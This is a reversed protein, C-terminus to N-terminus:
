VAAPPPSSLKAVASLAAVAAALTVNGNAPWAGLSEVGEALVGSAPLRAPAYRAVSVVVARAAPEGAVDVWQLRLGRWEPQGELALLVAEAGLFAPTIGTNPGQALGTLRRGRSEHLCVRVVLQPGHLSLGVEDLALSGAQPGVWAPQASAAGAAPPTFAGPEARYPGAEGASPQSVSGGANRLVAVSIRRYPVELDFRVLLLSQVDRILLKPPRDGRSVIHLESLQGRPDYLARCGVVGPLEAM